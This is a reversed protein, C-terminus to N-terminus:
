MEIVLIAVTVYNFIELPKYLNIKATKGSDSQCRLVFITDKSHDGLMVM